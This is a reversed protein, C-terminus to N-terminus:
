TGLCINTVYGNLLELPQCILWNFAQQTKITCLRPFFIDEGLVTWGKILMFIVKDLTMFWLLYLMMVKCAFFLYHDITFLGIKQLLLRSMQLM